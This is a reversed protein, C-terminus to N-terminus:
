LRDGTSIPYGESQYINPFIKLTLSLELKQEQGVCPFLFDLLRSNLFELLVLLSPSGTMTAYADQTNELPEPASNRMPGNKFEQIRPKKFEQIWANL